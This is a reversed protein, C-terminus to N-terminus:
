YGIGFPSPLSGIPPNLIQQFLRCYWELYLYYLYPFYLLPYKSNLLRANRNNPFHFSHQVSNGKFNFPSSVIAWLTPAVPPPFIGSIIVKM